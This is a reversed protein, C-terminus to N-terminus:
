PRIYLHAIERPEIGILKQVCCLGARARDMQKRSSITAVVLVLESTAYMRGSKPERAQEARSEGHCENEKRKKKKHALLPSPSM